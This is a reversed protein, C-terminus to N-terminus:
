QKLIAKPFVKIEENQEDNAAEMGGLVENDDNDDGRDFWLALVWREGVLIPDVGHWRETSNNFAIMTGTFPILQHGDVMHRGGKFDDNLNFIITGTDNSDAQDQHFPMASDMPYQIIQMFSVNQFDENWPIVDEIWSMIKEFDANDFGVNYSIRGMPDLYKMRNGDEENVAIFHGNHRDGEVVETMPAKEHLQIIAECCEEDLAAHGVILIPPNKM